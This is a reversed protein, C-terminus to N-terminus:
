FLKLQQGINNLPNKIGVSQLKQETLSKFTVQYMNWLKSQEKEAIRFIGFPLLSIKYSVRFDDQKLADACMVESGFAGNFFLNLAAMKVCTHDLDIGYFEHGPGLVESGALLLRGSGCCPDIVRLPRESEEQPTVTCRAMFQCVPWPTFFQGLKGQSFSQEYYEGLVDNGQTSGKRDEMEAVLSAFAKPFQHRLDHTKYPEITQMYLDEYHSKGKLPHQTVACLSMTLFDEFVTRLTYHYRFPELLEAFSQNEKKM